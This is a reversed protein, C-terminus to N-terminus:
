LPKGYRAILDDRLVHLIKPTNPVVLGYHVIQTGGRTGPVPNNFYDWFAVRGYINIVHSAASHFVNDLWHIEDNFTPLIWTSNFKHISNEYKAKILWPPLNSYPPNCFGNSGYDRSRTILANTAEDIFRACKTNQESAALDVDFPGFLNSCYSYLWDPTRWYDNSMSLKAGPTAVPRPNSLANLWHQSSNASYNM